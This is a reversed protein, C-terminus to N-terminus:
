ILWNKKFDEIDDYTRDYTVIKGDGTITWLETWDPSNDEDTYVHVTFEIDRGDSSYKKDSISFTEYYTQHKEVLMKVEEFLKDIGSKVSEQKILCKSIPSSTYFAYTKYGRPMDSLMEYENEAVIEVYKNFIKNYDLNGDLDANFSHTSYVVEEGSKNFQVCMTVENNDYDTRATLLCFGVPKALINYHMDDMIVRYGMNLLVTQLVAKYLM